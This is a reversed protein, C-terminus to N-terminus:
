AVPSDRPLTVPPAGDRDDMALTTASHRNGFFIKWHSKRVVDAKVLRSVRKVTMRGPLVDCTRFAGARSAAFRVRHIREDIRGPIERSKGIRPDLRCRGVALDCVFPQWDILVDAANLM